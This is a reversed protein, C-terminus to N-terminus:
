PPTEEQLPSVRGHSMEVVDNTLLRARDARQEVLLLAAGAHHLRGLGAYIEEIAAPALGLALEDAIVLRPPDALVRALALLRQEGGSLTGAAQRRRERLRPYVEFAAELAEDVRRTSQRFALVLNEEVTLSAFVGRGEPIHAMGATALDHPSSSTVDRGDFVVSGRTPRVLGSCVRALTTKGAGNPGVVACASGALLTLSVGFLVRFKGYGADVEELRLLVEGAESM